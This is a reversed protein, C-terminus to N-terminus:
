SAWKTKNRLKVKWEEWATYYSFHDHYLAKLIKESCQFRHKFSHYTMLSRLLNKTVKIWDRCSFQRLKHIHKTKEWTPSSTSRTILCHDREKVLDGDNLSWAISCGDLKCSHKLLLSKRGIKVPLLIRSMSSFRMLMTRISLLLLLWITGVLRGWAMLSSIRTISPSKEGESFSSQVLSSNLLCMTFSLCPFRGKSAPSNFKIMRSPIAGVPSKSNVSLELQIRQLFNLTATLTAGPLLWPSRIRSPIVSANTTLSWRPSHLNHM